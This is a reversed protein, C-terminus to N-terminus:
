TVENCKQFHLQNYNSCTRQCAVNNWLAAYLRRNIEPQSTHATPLGTPRTPKSNRDHQQLENLSDVVKKRICIM